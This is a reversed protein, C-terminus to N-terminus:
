SDKSMITDLSSFNSLLKYILDELWVWGGVEWKISIM